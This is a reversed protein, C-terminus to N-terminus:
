AEDESDGVVTGEVKLATSAGVAGALESGEVEVAEIAGSSMLTVRSVDVSPGVVDTKMLKGPGESEIEVSVSDLRALLIVMDVEAITSDETSEAILRGVSGAVNGGTAVDKSVEDLTSIGDEAMTMEVGELIEVSADTISTRGVLTLEIESISVGAADETGKTLWVRRSVVVVLGSMTDVEGVDVISDKGVKDITLESDADIDDPEICDGSLVVMLALKELSLERGTCVDTGVLAESIEGVVTPSGSVTECIVDLADKATGVESLTCTVEPILVGVISSILM